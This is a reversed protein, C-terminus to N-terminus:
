NPQGRRVSWLGQAALVVAVSAIVGLLLQPFVWLLMGDSNAVRGGVLGAGRMHAVSVLTGLLSGLLMVLYGSRGALALTGYMWVAMTLITQIHKLGGPEFGRVIDDSVHFLVLINSCVSLVILVTRQKM